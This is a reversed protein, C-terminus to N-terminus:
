DDPSTWALVVSPLAATLWILAFTAAVILQRQSELFDVSHDIGFDNVPIVLAALVSVIAALGRYSRVYVRDRVEVLREDLLEDPADAVLRM